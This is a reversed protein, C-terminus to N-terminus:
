SSPQMQVFFPVLAFDIWKIIAFIGIQNGDISIFTQNYQNSQFLTHM